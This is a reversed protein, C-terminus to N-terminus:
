RQKAQPLVVAHSSDVPTMTSCSQRQDWTTEAAFGISLDGSDLHAVRRCQDLLQSFRPDSSVLTRCRRIMSAVTGCSRVALSTAIHQQTYIGDEFAIYAAVSRGLSASRSRCLLRDVPVDFCRAVTELIRSLAPRSPRDRWLPHDAGRHRQAMRQTMEELWSNRGLFIQGRLDQWPSPPATGGIFRVYEACGIPSTGGFNGLVDEVALWPDPSDLGATQRYSSWSWHSPDRVLGARVPNLVVYRILALLYDEEEVLVGHFRGQFLHGCRYHRRNFYQAYRGNLWQMGRSINPEPTQVVLHYHNSMLVWASLRWRFRMVSEGLLRLFYERDIDDRFIEKKENGRSTIHWLADEHDLRLPRAM